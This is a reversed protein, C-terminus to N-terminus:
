LLFSERHSDERSDSRGFGGFPRRALLDSHCVAKYLM